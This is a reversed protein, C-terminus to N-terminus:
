RRRRRMTGAVECLLAFLCLPVGFFGGATFGLFLSAKRGLFLGGKGLLTAQLLLLYM